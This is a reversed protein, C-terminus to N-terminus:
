DPESVYVKGGWIRWGGRRLEGYRCDVKKALFRNRRQGLPSNAISIVVVFVRGKRKKKNKKDKGWLSKVRFLMKCDVVKSKM